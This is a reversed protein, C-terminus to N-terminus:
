ASERAVISFGTNIHKKRLRKGQKRVDLAALTEPAIRDTHIDVTTLTPRMCSSLPSNGLGIVALDGPVQLGQAQAEIVIAQALHDSPCIVVDVRAKLAHIHAFIARGQQFGAPTDIQQVSAHRKALRKWEQMFATCRLESHRGTTAVFHPRRYGGDFAFRALAHGLDAQVFGIGIDLPKAAADCIEVVTVGSSRLLECGRTDIPAWAIVADVRWGLVTTVMQGAREPSGGTLCLMVNMRAKALGATITEIAENFNSHALDSILLAVLRPRSSALSGAVFNPTYGMASVAASIRAATRKAVVSPNSFFRSVTAAHVSARRAVDTLTASSSKKKHSRSVSNV